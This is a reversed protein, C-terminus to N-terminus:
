GPLLDFDEPVDVRPVDHMPVDGPEMMLIREREGNEYSAEDQLKILWDFVQTQYLTDAQLLQRKKLDEKQKMFSEEVNINYMEITSHNCHHLHAFVNDNTFSDINCTFPSVNNVPNPKPQENPETQPKEDLTVSDETFGTGSRRTTISSDQKSSNGHSQANQSAKKKNEEVLKSAEKKKEEILQLNHKLSEKLTEHNPMTYHNVIHEDKLLLFSTASRPMEQRLKTRLARHFVRAIEQECSLVLRIREVQQSVRMEWRQNEQYEYLMRFRDDLLKGDKYGPHKVWPIYLKSALNDQLLYSHNVGLYQNYYGPAIPKSARLKYFQSIAAKQSLIREEEDTLSNIKDAACPPHEMQLLNNWIEQFEPPCTLPEKPTSLSQLNQNLNKALSSSSTKERKNKGRGKSKPSNKISNQKKARGTSSKKSFPSTIQTLKPSHTVSNDRNNPSISTLTEINVSISSESEAKKVANEMRLKKKREYKGRLKPHGMSKSNKLADFLDEEYKAIQVSTKDFNENLLHAESKPEQEIVGVPEYRFPNINMDKLYYKEADKIRSSDAILLPDEIIPKPKEKKTKNPPTTKEQLDSKISELISAQEKSLSSSNSIRSKSNQPQLNNGNDFIESGLDDILNNLEPLANDGGFDPGLGFDTLFDPSIENYNLNGGFDLNSIKSFQSQLPNSANNNSSKKSNNDIKKNNGAPSVLTSFLSPSTVNNNICFSVRKARSPVGNLLKEMDNLGLSQSLLSTTQFLDILNTSYGSCTASSPHSLYDSDEEDNETIEDKSDTKYNQSEMFNLIKFGDQNTNNEHMQYKRIRGTVPDKKLNYINAKQANRQRALWQSIQTRGLGTKEVLLDLNSTKAYKSVNDYYFRLLEVQKQDFM